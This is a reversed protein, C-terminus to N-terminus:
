LNIDAYIAAHDSAQEVQATMTAYHPFLTGNKGGWVGKRFIRGGTVKSFLTPSLLIYDIKDSKTGNQFTGPRGDSTFKPHESIDRLDTGGLLPKLPDRGPYDNFDGLVVVHTQGETRLEEYIEAVRTAQRRRKTDNESQKGYGKSKLHNVLLVIEAGSPTRITYEPCDRSFIQGKSDTDDVHSRIRVIDYGARTLIGVDIWRQDNGDILMVHDYPTGKVFGLMIASFDRLAVRNDAEVVAQIDANVDKIVRATHTTALQNVPETTLEVWGIWDDRGTATIEVTGDVHRTLLHGRNQRLTAYDAEDKDRLGLTTLLDLIETRVPTAYSRLNFLENIRAHAELIKKGDEWSSLNMAKPRNFLSEVNFSAIRMTPERSAFPNLRKVSM